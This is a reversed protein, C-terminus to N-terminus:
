NNIVGNSEAHITIQPLVPMLPAYTLTVGVNVDSGRKNTEGNPGSYVLTVDDMVGVLGFTADLHM